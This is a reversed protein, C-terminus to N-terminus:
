SDFFGIPQWKVIIHFLKDTDSLSKISNDTQAIGESVHHVWESVLPFLLLNVSLTIHVSSYTNEHLNLAFHELQYSNMM